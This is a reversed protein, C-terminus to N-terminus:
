RVCRRHARVRSIARDVEVTTENKGEGKNGSLASKTGTWYRRGLMMPHFWGTRMDPLPNRPPYKV